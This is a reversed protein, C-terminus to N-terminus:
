VLKLNQTWHYTLNLNGTLTMQFINQAEKRTFHTTEM